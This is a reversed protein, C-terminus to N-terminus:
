KINNYPDLGHSIVSSCAKDPTEFEAVIDSKAQDSLKTSASLNLSWPNYKKREPEYNGDLDTYNRGTQCIMQAQVLGSRWVKRKLFKETDTISNIDLHDIISLLNAQPRYAQKVEKKNKPFRLNFVVRIQRENARLQYIKSKNQLALSLAYNRIIVTATDSVPNESDSLDYLTGKSSKCAYKIDINKLSIRNKSISIKASLQMYFDYPAGLEVKKMFQNHMSLKDYDPNKLDYVCAKIAKSLLQQMSSEVHYQLINDIGYRRANDQDAQANEFVSVVLLLTSIISTVIGRRKIRENM